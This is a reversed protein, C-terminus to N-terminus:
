AGLENMLDDSATHRAYSKVQWHILRLNAMVGLLYKAIEAMFLPTVCCVGVLFPVLREPLLVRGFITDPHLISARIRAAQLQARRQEAQLIDDCTGNQQQQHGDPGGREPVGDTTSGCCKSTSSYM